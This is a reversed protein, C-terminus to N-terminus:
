NQHHRQELREPHGTHLFVECRHIFGKNKERESADAPKNTVVDQLHFKILHLLKKKGELQNIERM